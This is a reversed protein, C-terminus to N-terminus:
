ESVETFKYKTLDVGTDKQTLNGTRFETVEWSLTLKDSSDLARCQLSIGYEIDVWVYVTQTVEGDTYARQIYKACERGAVQETGMLMVNSQLPLKEDVASLKMFLSSITSFKKDSLLTHTNSSPTITYMDTGSGNEKYYMLSQSQEYEVCFVKDARTEKVTVTSSDNEPNYYRYTVSFNKMWSNDTKFSIENEEAATTEGNDAATTQVSPNYEYDDIQQIDDGSCAALAATLSLALLFTIIKKM